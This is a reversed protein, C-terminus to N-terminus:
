AHKVKEVGGAGPAGAPYAVGVGAFCEDAKAKALLAFRYDDGGPAATAPEAATTVALLLGAALAMMKVPNRRETPHNM